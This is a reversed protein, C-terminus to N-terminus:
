FELSIDHHTGPKHDVHFAETPRSSNDRFPIISLVTVWGTGSATDRRRPGFGPSYVPSILTLHSSWRSSNATSDWSACGGPMSPLFASSIVWAPAISAPFSTPSSSPAAPRTVRRMERLATEHDNFYNFGGVSWCADFTADDFPLNEAEAWALRNATEPHRHRCADLQTRAIDVGHVTWEPPLFALNEGSGIGVELVVPRQRDLGAVHRLIQMAGAFEGRSMLFAQEWPRFRVWGPGDYFDAVIRNRGALPEIAEM